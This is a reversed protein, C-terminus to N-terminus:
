WFMPFSTKPGAGHFNPHAHGANHWSTDLTRKCMTPKLTLYIKRRPFSLYPARGFFRGCGVLLLWGCISGTRAQWITGEAQLEATEKKEPDKHQEICNPDTQKTKRRGEWGITGLGTSPLEGIRSIPKPLASERM